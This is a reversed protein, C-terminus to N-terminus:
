RFYIKARCYMELFSFELLDKWNRSKYCQAMSYHIRKLLSRNESRSNRRIAQKLVIRLSINIREAFDNKKHFQNGLSNTLERKEVLFKDLFAIKYEYSLRLWYDLDEFVLREDYGKLIDFQYRRMMASVSCM